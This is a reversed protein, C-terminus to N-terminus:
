GGLRYTQKEVLSPAGRIEALALVKLVFQLFCSGFWGFRDLFWPHLNSIAWSTWRSQFRAEARLQWLWAGSRSHVLCSGTTAHSDILPFKNRPFGLDFAHVMFKWMLLTLCTELPPGDAQGTESDRSVKLRKSCAWSGYLLHHRCPVNIWLCHNCPSECPDQGFKCTCHTPWTSSALSRKFSPWMSDYKPNPTQLKFVLNMRVMQYVFM